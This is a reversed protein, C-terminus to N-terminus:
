DKSNNLVGITSELLNPAEFLFVEVTKWNPCNSGGMQLQFFHNRSFLLPTNNQILIGANTIGYELTRVSVRKDCGLGFQKHLWNNSKIYDSGKKCYYEPNLLTLCFRNDGLIRKLVDISFPKPPINMYCRAKVFYKDEDEPQITLFKEQSVTLSPDRNVIHYHKTLDIISNLTVYVQIKKESSKMLNDTVM